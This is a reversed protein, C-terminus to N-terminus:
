QLVLKYCNATALTGEASHEAVQEGDVTTRCSIAGDGLGARIAVVYVAAPSNMKTTVKWPLEVSGLRKPANGSEIYVIEAPGDGTVEYTVSVEAGVGPIGTPLDTPLGPLEPFGTPLGPLEPGDTPLAPFTPELIPATIEAAKETARDVLIKGVVAVGGCLLLTIALVLAIMPIASKRPPPPPPPAGYGPQYGPDPPNGPDQPYGPNYPPPQAVGPTYAHPQYPGPSVPPFESTPPYDPNNFTPPRPPQRPESPDSM